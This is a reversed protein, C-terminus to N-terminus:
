AKPVQWFWRTAEFNAQARSIGIDKLMRADMELLERRTSLVRWAVAVGHGVHRLLPGVRSAVESPATLAPQFM